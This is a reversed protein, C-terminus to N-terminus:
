IFAQMDTVTWRSITFSVSLPQESEPLERQDLQGSLAERTCTQSRLPRAHLFLFWLFFYKTTWKVSCMLHCLQPKATRENSFVPWYRNVLIAALFWQCLVVCLCLVDFVQVNWNQMWEASWNDFVRGIRWTILSLGCYKRSFFGGFVNFLVISRCKGCVFSGTELLPWQCLETRDIGSCRVQSKASQM